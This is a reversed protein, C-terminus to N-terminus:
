LQGLHDRCDKLLQKLDSQIQKSHCHRVPDNSAYSILQNTGRALLFVETVQYRRTREFVIDDYSRSTFLAKLRWALKSTANLSSFHQATEMQEALARRISHRLMPELYFHFGNSPD